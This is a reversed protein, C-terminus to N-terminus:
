AQDVFKKLAEAEAVINATSPFDPM